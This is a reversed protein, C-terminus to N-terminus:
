EERQMSRGGNTLPVALAGLLNLQSKGGRVWGWHLGGLDAPPSMAAGGSGGEAGAALRPANRKSTTDGDTCAVPAGTYSDIEEM